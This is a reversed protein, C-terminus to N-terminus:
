ITSVAGTYITVVGGTLRRQKLEAFGADEMLKLFDDGEPFSSVSDPLYRYAAKDKSFLSGFFPLIRRFYLGYIHRFPFKKPRSFELIMVVGGKRLVRWMESLGKDPNEFNRVGFSVMVADFSGDAFPLDESDGIMLEIKESLKKRYLKKRAEELMRQSMDIATLSVPNLRLSEIALDCTGTAIDLIREPKIRESIEKVAKRRWIRDIGFSLFHNLFDYRWAISDFMNRVEEKKRM